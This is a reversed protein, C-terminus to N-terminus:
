TTLTIKVERLREFCPSRRVQELLAYSSTLEERESMKTKRQEIQMESDRKLPVLDSRLGSLLERLRGLRTDTEQIKMETYEMSADVAASRQALRDELQNEAFHHCEDHLDRGYTELEEVRSELKALMQEVERLEASRRPGRDERNIDGNTGRSDGRCLITEARKVWAQVEVMSRCLYEVPDEMDETKLKLEPAKHERFGEMVVRLHKAARDQRKLAHALVTSHERRLETLRELARPGSRAYAPSRQLAKYQAEKAEAEEYERQYHSAKVM